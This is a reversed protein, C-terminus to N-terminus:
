YTKLGFILKLCQDIMRPGAIVELYSALANKVFDAWSIDSSKGDIIDVAEELRNYLSQADENKDEGEIELFPLRAKGKFVQKLYDRVGGDAKSILLTLNAIAKEWSTGCAETGLLPTNLCIDGGAALKKALPEDYDQVFHIRRKLVERIKENEYSDIQQLIFRMSHKMDHGTKHAKGAILLHINKEELLDALQPLDMFVLWPRKYEQWRRAWYVIKEKIRQGDPLVKDEAPLTIPQDYQDRRTELYKRLEQRAAEKIEILEDDVLAEIKNQYDESALGFEDLIGKYRDTFLGLLRPNLWRPLYLANTIPWHPRNFVETARDAHLKSVGSHTQALGMAIDTIRGASKEALTRLLTAVDPHLNGAMQEDSQGHVHRMIGDQSFHGAASGEMTHNTFITNMRVMELAGDVAMGQKVLYDLHSLVFVFTAAENMIIKSPVIGLEVLGKHVAMLGADQFLRHWDNTSGQYLEGYNPEYPFVVPVGDVKKTYIEFLRDQGNIKLTVEILKKAGVKEPRPISEDVETQYFGTEQSVKQHWRSNYWCTVLIVPLGLDTFQMTEDGALIGLGGAGNIGLIREAPDLDEPFDKESVLLSAEASVYVLPRELDFLAEALSSKGLQELSASGRKFDWNGFISEIARRRRLEFKEADELSGDALGRIIDTKEATM